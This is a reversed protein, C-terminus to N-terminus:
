PLVLVVSLLVVPPSTIQKPSATAVGGEDCEIVIQSIIGPISLVGGSIAIISPNKM